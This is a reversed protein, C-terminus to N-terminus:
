SLKLRVVHEQKKQIVVVVECNTMIIEVCENQCQWIFCKMRVLARM